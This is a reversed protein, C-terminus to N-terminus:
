AVAESAKTEACAGSPLERYSILRISRRQMVDRLDRDTLCILEEERRKHIADSESFGREFLGPHCALEFTGPPLNELAAKWRERLDAVDGSKGLSIAIRSDPSHLRNFTTRQLARRYIGVSVRRLIHGSYPEVLSRKPWAVCSSARMSGIGEAQLARAFARAACPYLHMHHHSDAHSPVVGRQKTWRIQARFESEIEAPAVRRAWFRRAM